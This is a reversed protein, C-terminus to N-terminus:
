FLCLELNITHQKMMMCEGLNYKTGQIRKYARVIDKYTWRIPENNDDVGCKFDLIYYDPHRHAKRFVDQFQQVTHKIVTRSDSIQLIENLDYDNSYFFESKTWDM